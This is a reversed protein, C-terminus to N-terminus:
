MRFAIQNSNIWPPAPADESVNVSSTGSVIICLSLRVRVIPAVPPCVAILSLGVVQKRRWNGLIRSGFFPGLHSQSFSSQHSFLSLELSHLGHVLCDRLFDDSELSLTSLLARTSPLHLFPPHEAVICCLWLRSFTDAAKCVHYETYPSTAQQTSACATQPHFSNSVKTFRTLADARNLFLSPNSPVLRRLSVTPQPLSFLPPSSSPPSNSTKAQAVAGELMFVLSASRSAEVVRRADTEEEFGLFGEGKWTGPNIRKSRRQLHSPSSPPAVSLWNFLCYSQKLSPPAYSLVVAM